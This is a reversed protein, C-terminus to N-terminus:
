EFMSWLLVLVLMVCGAALVAIVAVEHGRRRALRRQKKHWVDFPTLVGYGDCDPCLDHGLVGLGSCRDCIM